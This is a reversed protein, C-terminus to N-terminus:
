NAEDIGNLCIFISVATRQISCERRVCSAMSIVCCSSRTKTNAKKTSIRRLPLTADWKEQLPEIFTPMVILEVYARPTCHAGLMDREVPDLACELLTGLISLEVYQWNSLAAEILLELQDHTLPLGAKEKFFEGNFQKINERLIKSFKGQNM